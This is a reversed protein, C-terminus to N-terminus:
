AQMLAGSRASGKKSRQYFPAQQIAKKDLEYRRSNESL